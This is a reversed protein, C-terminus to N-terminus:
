WRDPRNKKSGQKSMRFIFQIFCNNYNHNIINEYYKKNEFFLFNILIKGMEKQLNEYGSKGVLNDIQLPDFAKIDGKQLSKVFQIVPQVKDFM